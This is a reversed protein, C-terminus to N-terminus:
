NDSRPHRRPAIEECDDLQELLAETQLSREIEMALSHWGAAMGLYGAHLDIDSTSSAKRLAEEALRRYYSLRQLLTEPQFRTNLEDVDSSVITRAALVRLIGCQEPFRRTGVHYNLM